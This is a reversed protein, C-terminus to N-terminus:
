TTVPTKPLGIVTINNPLPTNYYNGTRKRGMAKNEQVEKQLYIGLVHCARMSFTKHDAFGTELTFLVGTLDM